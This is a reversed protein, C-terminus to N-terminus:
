PLTKKPLTFYFTSGKGLESEVWIKGGLNGVIKKVIALGMGTGGYEEQNHLRQFIVFIREYYEKEIGIGNDAVSITWEEDNETASINIMPLVNDKKYKIANNILNQFMQVLPTRKTEIIPLNEFHVTAGSEIIPQRLLKCVENLVVDLSVNEVQHDKSGLKSFALLDLLIQRMRAAGNYAFNIYQHAKEDLQRDYRKKLLTLFSSIMRLPEQLDHSAVYAFQELDANSRHLETIYKNLEKNLQILKEEANKQRNIDQFSGYIHTCEGSSYRANCVVRVWLENGKQTIIPMEFDSKEGTAITRQFYKIAEDRVDERYYNLATEADPTFDLDVEHIIKTIPSWTLKDNKLDFEWGGVRALKAANNLLQQLEIIENSLIVRETVDRSNAVIGNVTPDDTMNVLITEIWRWSGNNHRFRFPEVVVRKTSNLNDFAEALKLHDDEHIFDYANKGILTDPHIDLITESTPSVYKYIGESDVIAILDNGEQVLSRFRRESFETSIAKKVNESIDVGIGYISSEGKYIIHRATFRYPIIEGSKLVLNASVSTEGTEFAISIHKKVLDADKDFFDSPHMNLIEDHSYGTVFEHTRNWYLHKGQENFLFFINPLNEILSEFLNSESDIVVPNYKTSTTM